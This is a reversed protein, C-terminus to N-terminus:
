LFECCKGPVAGAHEILSVEDRQRESDDGPHKEAHHGNRQRAGFAEREPKRAARQQDSQKETMNATNPADAAVHGTGCADGHGLDPKNEKKGACAYLRALAETFHHAQM